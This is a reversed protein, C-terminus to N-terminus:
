LSMGWNAAVTAAVTAKNNLPTLNLEMAVWLAIPQQILGTHHLWQAIEWELWHEMFPTIFATAHATRDPITCIFSSKSSILFLLGHPPLLNKERVIQTTRKWIDLVMYGYIFHTSHTMLCVMEKRRTARIRKPVWIKNSKYIYIKKYMCSYQTNLEMNNVKFM